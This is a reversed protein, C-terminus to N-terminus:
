KKADDSGGAASGSGEKGKSDGDGSHNGGHKGDGGGVGGTTGKDGDKVNAKTWEAAKTIRGEVDAKIKDAAAADKATLTVVAGKADKASTATAGEPVFVPCIGSQGGHTGKGDHTSGTKNNAKTKLLTETRRQISEIADKDESTITIMVKGDKSEVKTTSTAVTSPCMGAKNAMANDAASGSGDSGSGTAMASGADSGSGSGSGTAMASGSGSGSGTTMASGSGSGTTDGDKPKKKCGTTSLALTLALLALTKMLLTTVDKRRAKMEIAKTKTKTAAGAALAASGKTSGETLSGGPVRVTSPWSTAPRPRRSEVSTIALSRARRPM